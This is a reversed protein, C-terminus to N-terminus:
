QAKHQTYWAQFQDRHTTKLLNNLEAFYLSPGVQEIVSVESNEDDPSLDAYYVEGKYTIAFRCCTTGAGNIVNVTDLVHMDDTLQTDIIM